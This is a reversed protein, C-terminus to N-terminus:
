IRGPRPRMTYCLVQGEAVLAGERTTVWARLHTIPKDRRLGVVEVYAVIPDGLRVPGRTHWNFNLIVTGPGPLDELLVPHLVTPTLVGTEVSQGDDHHESEAPELDEFRVVDARAARQGAEPMHITWAPEHRSEPRTALAPLSM